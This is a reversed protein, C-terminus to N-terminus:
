VWNYVARNNNNVINNCNIATPCESWSLLLASQREYGLGVSLQLRHFKEVIREENSSCVLTKILVDSVKLLKLHCVSPWQTYLICETSRHLIYWTTMYLKVKRQEPFTQLLLRPHGICSIIKTPLCCLTGPPLLLGAPLTALTSWRTMVGEMFWYRDNPAISSFICGSSWLEQCRLGQQLANTQYCKHEVKCRLM